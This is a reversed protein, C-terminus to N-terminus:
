NHKKKKLDSMNCSKTRLTTFLCLMEFPIVNEFKILFYSNHQVNEADNFHELFNDTYFQFNIFFFKFFKLM